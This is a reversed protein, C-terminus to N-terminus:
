HQIRPCWPSEPIVTVLLIVQSIGRSGLAFGSTSLLLSDSLIVGTRETGAEEVRGSCRGQERGSM